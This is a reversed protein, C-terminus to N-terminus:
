VKCLEVGDAVLRCPHKYHGKGTVGFCFVGVGRRSLMIKERARKPACVNRTSVSNGWCLVTHFAARTYAEIFKDNVSGGCIDFLKKHVSGGDMVEEDSLKGNLAEEVRSGRRAYVNVMYLGDYGLQRSIKVLNTITPDNMRYGARSPNVGVYCVVRADVDNRFGIENVVANEAWHRWLVYRHTDDVNRCAGMHMCGVQDREYVLLGDSENLLKPIM